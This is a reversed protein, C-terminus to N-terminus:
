KHASQSIAIQRFTLVASTLFYDDQDLFAIYDGHSNSIGKKRALEIGKNKSSTIIKKKNAKRLLSVALNRSKDTSGDDVVIIEIDPYTQKLVSKLCRQLTRSGNFVPIIISVTKM